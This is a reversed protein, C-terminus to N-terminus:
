CNGFNRLTTTVEDEADLLGLVEQATLVAYIFYQTKTHRPTHPPAATQLLASCLRFNAHEIILQNM